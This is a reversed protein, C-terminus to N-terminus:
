QALFAKLEEIEATQESIISKALAAVDSNASEVVEQAMEMAGEHHAIMFMAFMQDFTSGTAGQLDQMQQDTLLGPMAHGMHDDANPAGAAQLWATMKDIEPQQASSIQAALAVIQPDSARTEALQSMEVAQEHHPIMMQAFVVDAANFDNSQPVDQGASTMASGMGAHAPDGASHTTSCAALILAAPILAALLLRKM